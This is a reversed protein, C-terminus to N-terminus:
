FGLGGRGSKDFVRGIIKVSELEDPPIVEDKWQDKNDSMVLIGGDRMRRLRKVRIQDAVVIAYVGDDILMTDNTNISVMDGNYLLPEMSNGRVKCRKIQTPNKIGIKKLYGIKYTHHTKTEVFEVGDTGDGASLEIDVVEVTVDDDDPPDEDTKIGRIDSIGDDAKTIEALMKGRGSNLWVPDVALAVALDVVRTSTKQENNEIESLTSYPVGSAEALKARSMGRMLRANKIRTGLTMRRNNRIETDSQRQSNIVPDRLM